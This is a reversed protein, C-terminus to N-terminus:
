KKTSEIIFDIIDEILENEEEYIVNFKQFLKKIKDSPNKFYSEFDENVINWITKSAGGTFGIPIIVNNNIHAIEFESIVGSAEVIEDKKERKNGFIFISIGVRSIMDKRYKDWLEARNKENEIGQPFPRLLLRDDNITKSKLYIEELAGKIVYSGVGM